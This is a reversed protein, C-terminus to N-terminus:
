GLYVAHSLWHQTLVDRRWCLTEMCFPDMSEDKERLCCCLASPHLCWEVHHSSSVTWLESVARSPSTPCLPVAPPCRSLPFPCLQSHLPRPNAPVKLMCSSPLFPSCCGMLVASPFSMLSILPYKRYHVRVPLACAFRFSKLAPERVEERCSCLLRKKSIGPQAVLKSGFYILLQLLPFLHLCCETNLTHTSLCSLLPPM